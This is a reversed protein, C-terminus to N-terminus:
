SVRQVIEEPIVQSAHPDVPVLGGVEEVGLLDGADQAEGGGTEVVQHADIHLVVGEAVLERGRGGAELVEGKPGQERAQGDGVDDADDLGGQRGGTPDDEDAVVRGHQGDGGLRHPEAHADVLPAAQVYRHHVSTVQLLQHLFRTRVHEAGRGLATTEEAARRVREDDVQIAVEDERGTRGRGKARSLTGLHDIAQGLRKLTVDRGGAHGSM